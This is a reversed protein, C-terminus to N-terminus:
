AMREALSKASREVQQVPKPWAYRTLNYRSLM